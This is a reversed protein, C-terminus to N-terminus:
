GEVEACKTEGELGITGPDTSVVIGRRQLEDFIVEQLGSQVAMSYERDPSPYYETGYWAPLDTGAENEHWMDRNSRAAAIEGDVDVTRMVDLSALYELIESEQDAFASPLELGGIRADCVSGSPLTYSYELAPADAWPFVWDEANSAAAVGAGAMIVVGFVAGAVAGSRSWRGGAGSQARDTGATVAMRALEDEVRGNVATTKPAAARLRQEVDDDLADDMNMILRWTREDCVHGAVTCADAAIRLDNKQIRTLRSM